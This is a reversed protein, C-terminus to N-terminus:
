GDKRRENWETVAYSRVRKWEYLCCENKPHDFVVEGRVTVKRKLKMGCIPCPRPKVEAMKEGKAARASITMLRITTDTM